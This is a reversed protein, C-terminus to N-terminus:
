ALRIPRQHPPQRPRRNITTTIITTTTIMIIVTIDRCEAEKRSPDLRADVL